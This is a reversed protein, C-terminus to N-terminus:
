KSSFIVDLVYKEVQRNKGIYPFDHMSLMAPANLEVVIYNQPSPAAQPNKIIIDIGAIKLGAAQAAEIAVEKYLDPLDDTVDISDGGTSLNSNNRLFIKQGNGPVSQLSLHQKELHRLVEEDTKIKLLPHTYDDGRNQNKTKILSDITDKGNGTINAPERFAIARVQEDIVLFRYEQGPHYEEIIVKKSYKFANKVAKQIEKINGLNTSVAIGHDTDMPKVVLPFKLDNINKLAAESQLLFGKAHSIGKRQLFQKTMWKDNSIWYAILSNADSITGEHIIYEKNNHKVAILNNQADLIEFPLNRAIIEKLIIQTTAEFHEYGKLPQFNYGTKHIDAM